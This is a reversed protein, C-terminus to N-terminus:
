EPWKIDPANGGWFPQRPDFLDMGNLQVKGHKDIPLRRVSGDAFGIVADGNFRARDFRGTMGSMPTFLVPPCPKSKSDLGPIYAFSCEGPALATADSSFVGDPRVGTRPSQFNDEKALGTVLLQRFLQNSSSDGLTLSTGSHAKVMPATTSDPFRHYTREFELLGTGLRKFNDETISRDWYRYGRFVWWSALFHFSILLVSLIGVTTILRMWRQSRIAEPGPPPAPADPPPQAPLEMTLYINRRPTLRQLISDDPECGSGVETPAATVGLLDCAFCVEGESGAFHGLSPCQPLRGVGAM